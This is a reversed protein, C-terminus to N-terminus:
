PDVMCGHRSGYLATHFQNCVIEIDQGAPGRMREVAVEGLADQEIGAGAPGLAADEPLDVAPGDIGVDDRMGM